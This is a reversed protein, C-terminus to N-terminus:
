WLGGVVLPGRQNLGRSESLPQSQSSTLLYFERSDGGGGGM